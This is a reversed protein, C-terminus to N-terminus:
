HCIHQMLIGEEEAAKGFEELLGDLEKYFESFNGEPRGENSKRQDYFFGSEDEEDIPMTTFLEFLNDVESRERSFNIIFVNLVIFKM